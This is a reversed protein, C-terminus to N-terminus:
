RHDRDDHYNRDRDRREDFHREEFHGPRVEHHPTEYRIDHHTWLGIRDRGPGEMIFRGRDFRYGNMVSGHHYAWEARDRPWFFGHLDRDWFHNYDVFVFSNFPLGFDLDVGARGNFELGVGARFTAGPPLPAWGIAGEAQRWTVWAPAWQYGPVWLWGANNDRFWRGYHFAINGWPYDSDWYWGNETYIWHGGSGYPRWNPDSTAVTPRWAWGYGPVQTWGGYPALENHFTDFNADQSPGPAATTAQDGPQVPVQGSPPPPVATPATDPGATYPSGAPGNGILARIVTQPVGSKNLYILQDATLNYTAGSNRIHAIMVDEGMGAQSMKVVDQVGPPLPVAVPQSQAMTGINFFIVGAAVCTIISFLKTKITQLFKTSM